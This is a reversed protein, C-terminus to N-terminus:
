ALAASRLTRRLKIDCSFGENMLVHVNQRTLNQQHGKPTASPFSSVDFFTPLKKIDTTTLSQVWLRM